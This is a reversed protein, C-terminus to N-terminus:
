TKSRFISFHINMDIKQCGGYYDCKSRRPWPPVANSSVPGSHPLDPVKILLHACGGSAATCYVPCRYGATWGCVASGARGGAANPHHLAPRPSRRARVAAACVGGGDHHRLGRDPADMHDPDVGRRRHDAHASFSVPPPVPHRRYDGDNLPASATDAIRAGCLMAGTCRYAWPCKLPIEYKSYGSPM